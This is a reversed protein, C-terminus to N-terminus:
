RNNLCAVGPLPKGELFELSAGGGTSIHDVQESLGLQKVAAASDGGGIISYAASQAVARLTAETGAAFPALEFVGAPGNCVITGAEAIVRAFAASTDPGIDLGMWQAPIQDIPVVRTQADAAIATAIVADTPLYLNVGRARAKDQLQKVLELKSDDCLSAGIEGGNAKIFTYAMGGVILVSDCVDLLHDILALKDGIKAGGLMAVFPRRPAHLAQGLVSLEREMLLGSVAPLYAAVGATSAHARHAAGFADNVYVDALAAMKKAFDPDNKEEEPYFRVNELLVVQGPELAACLAQASDGVVDAALTVPRQLLASLCQAVPALSYKPVVQGKPRGLHSCLILAAGQELLATLTPLASRIRLDDTINGAEDLPVNFDCRVLVKKGAVAIDKISQKQYEM